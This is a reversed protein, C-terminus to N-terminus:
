KVSIGARIMDKIFLDRHTGTWYIKGCKSCRSFEKQTKYVFDPVLTKIEEKAISTVQTNCVTCRTFFRKKAAVVIREDVLQRLQQPLHDDKILVSKITRQFSLRNNRTIVIRNEKLSLMAVNNQSEQTVYNTDYGLIRLWRALRGLMFDVLFRPEKLNTM